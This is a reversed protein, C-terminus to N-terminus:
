CTVWHVLFIMYKCLEKHRTPAIDISILSNNWVNISIFLVKGFALNVTLSFLYISAFNVPLSASSKYTQWSAYPLKQTLARKLCVFLELHCHCRDISGRPFNRVFPKIWLPPLLLISAKWYFLSTYTNWSFLDEPIKCRYIVHNSHLEISIQQTITVGFAFM